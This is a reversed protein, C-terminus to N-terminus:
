PGEIMFVQYPAARKRHTIAEQYNPSEYWKMAAAKDPFQLIVTGDPAEGELATTEGYIVLPTMNEAPPGKANTEQYAKMADQDIIEGERIFIIYTAM